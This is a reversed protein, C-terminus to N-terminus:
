EIIEEAKFVSEHFGQQLLYNINESNKLKNMTQLYDKILKINKVVQVYVIPDMSLSEREADFNPLSLPKMLNRVRDVIRRVVTTNPSYVIKGKVFPKMIRWVIKLSPTTELKEYLENCLESSEEDYEYHLTTPFKNIDLFYDFGYCENKSDLLM